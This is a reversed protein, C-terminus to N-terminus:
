NIRFSIFNSGVALQQNTLGGFNKRQGLTIEQKSDKQHKELSWSGRVAGRIAIIRFERGPCRALIECRSGLPIRRRIEQKPLQGIRSERSAGEGMGCTKFGRPMVSFQSIGALQLAKKFCAQELDAM